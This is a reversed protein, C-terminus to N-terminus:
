FEEVTVECNELNLKQWEHELIAYLLSDRWSGKLLEHERLHGERRMSIKELVKSSGINKIDCTAFIRHLGLQLFGFRLLAKAVETAYECGWFLRNLCYVIWGKRNEPDSIHIGCGGILKEDAKLIIALTYNRRPQEKQCVISRRIFEQTEKTTNPGWHRYRVVEPNSAYNHVAQWDTEDFERLILRETCIIVM